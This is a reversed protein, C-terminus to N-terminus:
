RYSARSKYKHLPINYVAAKFFNSHTCVYDTVNHHMIQERPPQTALPTTAHPTRSDPWVDHGFTRFM